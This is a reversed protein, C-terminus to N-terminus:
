KRKRALAYVTITGAAPAGAAEISVSIYACWYTNIDLTVVGSSHASVTTASGLNGQAGGVKGIPQVSVNQDLDNEVGFAVKDVEFTSIWLEREPYKVNDDRLPFADFIRIIDKNIDKVEM